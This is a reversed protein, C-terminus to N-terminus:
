LQLKRVGLSAFKKIVNDSALSNLNITPAHSISTKNGNIVRVGVAAFKVTNNIPRTSEELINIIVKINEVIPGPEDILITNDILISSNKCVSICEYFYKDNLLYHEIKKTWSNVLSIYIYQKPNYNKIPMFYERNKKMWLIEVIKYKAGIKTAVDIEKQLEKGTVSKYGEKRKIREKSSLKSELEYSDRYKKVIKSIKSGIRGWEYTVNLNNIEYTWFKNSDGTKNIYCIKM